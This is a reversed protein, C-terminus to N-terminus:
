DWGARHAALEAVEDVAAGHLTRESGGGRGLRALLGEDDEEEGDEADGVGHVPEDADEGLALALLLLLLGGAGAPVDRAAREGREVRGLERKRAREVRELRGRGRLERELLVLDDRDHALEVGRGAGLHVGPDLHTKNEM